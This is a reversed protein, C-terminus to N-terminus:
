STYLTFGDVLNYRTVGTETRGVPLARLTPPSWPQRARPPVGSPRADAGHANSPNTM